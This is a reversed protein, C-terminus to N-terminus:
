RAYPCRGDSEILDKTAAFTCGRCGGKCWKLISCNKCAGKIDKISIDRLQSFVKSNEWIDILSHEKINGAKLEPISSMMSCGYVDGFANVFFNDKGATCGFCNETSTYYLDEKVWYKIDEARGTEYLPWYLEWPLQGEEVPVIRLSVPLKKQKKLDTMQLIFQKLEGYTLYCDRVNKKANGVTALLMIAAEHIGLEHMLELTEPIYNVNYKTLTIIGDVAIGCNMLNIIGRKTLEFTGSKGRSKDHIQATPGDLSVCIRDVNTQALKKAISEDIMTANTNVFYNFYHKDALKLIEFWDKRLFPEGGEFGVRLIGIQDFQEFIDEFDSVKLLHNSITSECEAEAYCFDCRLNCYPYISFDVYTPNVMQNKREVNLHTEFYTCTIQKCEIVKKM